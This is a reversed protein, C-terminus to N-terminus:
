TVQQTTFTAQQTLLLLIGRDVQQLSANVTRHFLIHECPHIHNKQNVQLVEQQEM